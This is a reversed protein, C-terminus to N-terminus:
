DNRNKTTNFKIKLDIKPDIKLGRNEETKQLSEEYNINVLCTWTFPLIVM